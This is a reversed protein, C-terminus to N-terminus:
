SGKQGRKLIRDVEEVVDMAVTELIRSDAGVSFLGGESVEKASM